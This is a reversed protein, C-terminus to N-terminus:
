GCEEGKKKGHEKIKTRNEQWNKEEEGHPLSFLSKQDDFRTGDSQKSASLTAFLSLWHKQVAAPLLCLRGELDMGGRGEQM